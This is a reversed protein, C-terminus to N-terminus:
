KGGFLKGVPSTCEGGDKNFPRRVLRHGGIRRLSPLLLSIFNNLGATDKRYQNDFTKQFDETSYVNAFVTRLLDKTDDLSDLIDDDPQDFKGIKSFEPGGVLPDHELREGTGQGLSMYFSKHTHVLNHGVYAKTPFCYDFVLKYERTEVLKDLLCKYDESTFNELNILEQDFEDKEVSVIPISLGTFNVASGDESIYPPTAFSKEVVYDRSLSTYNPDSFGEVTTSYDSLSVQELLDSIEFNDTSLKNYYEENPVYLLRIGKKIGITGKTGLPILSEPPIDESIPAAPEGTETDVVVGDVLEQGEIGYIIELDGFVDSILVSQDFTFESDEPLPLNIYELLSEPNVVGYLDLSRNNLAESVARIEDSIDGSPEKEILRFYKQIVFGGFERLSEIQETSLSTSQLINESISSPVSQIDGRISQELVSRYSGYNTNNGYFLGQRTSLNQSLRFVDAKKNISNAASNLIYKFEQKLLERFIVLCEKKMTRVTYMRTFMRFFKNAKRIFINLNGPPKEVDLKIPEGDPAPSFMADGIDDYVLSNLYFNRLILEQAYRKKSEMFAEESVGPGAPEGGTQENWIRNAVEEPVDFYTDYPMDELTPERHPLEHKPIIIQKFYDKLWNNDPYKYRIQSQEIRTLANLATESPEVEGSYYLRSYMQVCQELFSNVYTFNSIRSSVFGDRGAMDELMEEAVMQFLTDDYNGDFGGFISTFVPATHIYAETCYVRMMTKIAGEIQARSDQSIILDFPVLKICDSANNLRPDRTIKGKTNKVYEKIESINIIVERSPECGDREPILGDYIGKWGLNRPPEIYVRPRVYNGGHKEPDLFFVRPNDTQSRGLIKESRKKTYSTSGPEPDVYNLDEDTLEQEPDYGFSFGVNQNGDLDNYCMDKVTNYVLESTKAYASAYFVPEEPTELQINIDNFKNNLFHNFVLSRFPSAYSGNIDFNEQLYGSVEPSLQQQIVISKESLFNPGLSTKNNVYEKTNRIAYKDISFDSNEDKVNLLLDTTSTRKQLILSPSTDFNDDWEQEFSLSLVAPYQFEPLEPTSPQQEIADEVLDVLGEVLGPDEPPVVLQTNFQVPSDTDEYYKLGVTKPYFIDAKSPVEDSDSDEYGVFRTRRFIPVNSKWNHSSYGDNDTNALIKDLLGDSFRSGVTLDKTLTIEIPDFLGSVVNGAEERIEENNLNLLGNDDINCDPNILNGDEDFQPGDNIALDNAVNDTIFSELDSHADLLKGLTESNNEDEGLVNDRAIDEPIGLQTLLRIRDNFWKDYQQQSLCISAFVPTVSDEEIISERIENKKELPVSSSIDRFFKGVSLPNNFTDSFCEAHMAISQQVRSLVLPNYEEVRYSFLEKMERVSLAYGIATYLNKYNESIEAQNLEPCDEPKIGYNELVKDMTGDKLDRANQPLDPNAKFADAMVDFFKDPGGGNLGNILNDGLGGLTNCVAEDLTSVALDLLSILLKITSDSVAKLFAKYLNKSLADKINVANVKSLLRLNLNNGERCDFASTLETTGLSRKIPPSILSNWPCKLADAIPGIPITDPINDIVRQLDNVGIYNLLQDIYAETLAAQLNPLPRYLNAQNFSQLRLEKAARNERIQLKDILAVDRYFHAESDYGLDLIENGIQVSNISDEFRENTASAERITEELSQMEAQIMESRLDDPDTEQELERLEQLRTQSDNIVAERQEIGKQIRDTNQVRNKLDYFARVDEKTFVRGEGRPPPTLEWPLPANGVDEIFADTIQQSVSIPLTNSLLLIANPQMKKLYTQTQIKLFENLSLGRLLCRIGKEMLKSTGCYGLAKLIKLDNSRGTSEIMEGGGESMYKFISLFSDDSDVYTNYKAEVQQVNFLEEDEDPNTGFGRTQACNRKSWENFTKSVVDTMATTLLNLSRDLSNAFFADVPSDELSDVVQGGARIELQPFTYDLLFDVWTVPAPARLANDIEPIKSIYGMATQEAFLGKKLDGLKNKLEEFDCFRKQAYVRDIVFPKAPDSADFVIKIQDARDLDILDKTGLTYGNENLFKTLLDYFKFVNLSGRDGYIDPTYQQKTDRIYVSFEDTRSVYGGFTSLTFSLRVLQAYIKKGDLTVENPAFFTNIDVSTPADELRDILECPVSVLFKFPSGISITQNTSLIAKEVATSSILELFDESEEDIIKGYTELIIRIAEDVFSMSNGLTVMVREEESQPRNLDIDAEALRARLNSSNVFRGDADTTLVVSYLGRVEDKFPTELEQRTWDPVFADPNNLCVKCEEIGVVEIDETECPDEQLPRFKSTTM